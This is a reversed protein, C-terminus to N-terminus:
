QTLWPRNRLPDQRLVPGKQTLFIAVAGQSLESAGVSACHEVTVVVLYGNEDTCAPTADRTWQIRTDALSFYARDRRREGSWLAVADERSMPQGDHEAWADAVFGNGRMQSLARGAETLVGVLKGDASILIDPRPSLSWTVLGLMILPVSGFRWLGRALCFLVGGLTICALAFTPGAKIATTAGPLSAVWEAVRLIFEIGIGMGELPLPAAGLPALLAAIVGLPMVFFSM